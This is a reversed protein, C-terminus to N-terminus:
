NWQILMRGNAGNNGAANGVLGGVGGAGISCGVVSGAALGNNNYFTITCYGGGGGGGGIYLSGGDNYSGGGAGGGPWNGGAGGGAEGGGGYSWGGYGNSSGAFGACDGPHGGESGQGNIGSGYTYVVTSGLGGINGGGGGSASAVTWHWANSYYYAYGQYYGGGGGTAVIWSGFWTNGGNTGNLQGTATDVGGGGGGGGWLQVQLWNFKPVPFDVAGPTGSDWTTPIVSSAGYFQSMDLQGSTPVNANRTTNPVLVGNYFANIGENSWSGSFETILDSLAIQGSTQLAM